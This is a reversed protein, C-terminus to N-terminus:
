PKVIEVCTETGPYDILELQYKQKIGPPVFRGGLYHHKGDFHRACLKPATLSILLDPQIPQIITKRQTDDIPAPGNEVHWGSPIDISHIVFLRTVTQDFNWPTTMKKMLQFHIKDKLSFIM